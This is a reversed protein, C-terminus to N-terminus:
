WTSWGEDLVCDKVVGVKVSYVIKCWISLGEGFVRNKVYM